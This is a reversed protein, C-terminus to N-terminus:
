LFGNTMRVFIASVLVAPALKVFLLISHILLFNTTTNPDQPYNGPQQYLPHYIHYDQFLNERILLFKVCSLNVWRCWKFAMTVCTLESHLLYSMFIFHMTYYSIDYTTPRQRRKFKYHASIYINIALLLNM